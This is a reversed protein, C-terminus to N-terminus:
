IQSSILCCGTLTSFQEMAQLPLDHVEVQAPVRGPVRYDGREGVAVVGGNDVSAAGWLQLTM